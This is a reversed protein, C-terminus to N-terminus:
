GKAYGEEEEDDDDDTKEDDEENASAEDGDGDRKSSWPWSWSSKTTMWSPLQDAHRQWQRAMWGALVLKTPLLPIGILKNLVFWESVAVLSRQGGPLYRVYGQARDWWGPRDNNKTKHKKNKNTNTTWRKVGDVLRKGARTRVLTRVPRYRFCATFLAVHWTTEIALYFPLSRQIKETTTALISPPPSTTTGRPRRRRMEEGDDDDDRDNCNHSLSRRHDTM